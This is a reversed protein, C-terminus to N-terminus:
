MNKECSLTINCRLNVCFYFLLNMLYIPNNQRCRLMAQSIIRLDKVRLGERGRKAASGPVESEAEVLLHDAAGGRETIREEHATTPGALRGVIEEALRAFLARVAPLQSPDSSRTPTPCLVILASCLRSLQPWTMAALTPAALQVSLGELFAPNSLRARAFAWALSVLQAGSFQVTFTRPAPSLESPETTSTATVTLKSITTRGLALWLKPEFHGFSALTWVLQAWTDPGPVAAIATVRTELVDFLLPLASVRVRMRQLCFALEVLLQAPLGELSARDAAIREKVQSVVSASLPLTGAPPSLQLRSIVHSTFGRDAQGSTLGAVLLTGAESVPLEAVRSIAEKWVKGFAGSMANVYETNIKEDSIESHKLQSSINIESDAIEDSDNGEESNIDDEKSSEKGKLLLARQLVALNVAVRAADIASFQQKTALAVVAPLCDQLFSVESGLESFAYLLSSLENPSLQHLQRVTQGGISSLLEIRSSKSVYPKLMVCSLLIRYIHPGQLTKSRAAIDRHLLVVTHREYDNLRHLKEPSQRSLCELTLVLNDITFSGMKMDCYALLSSPSKAKTLRNAALKHFGYDKSRFPAPIEKSWSLSHSSPLAHLSRTAPRFASVCFKRM